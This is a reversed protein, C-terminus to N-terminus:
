HLTQQSPSPNDDLESSPQKRSKKAFVIMEGMPFRVSLSHLWGPPSFPKKRSTYQSLRRLINGVSFWVMNSQVGTISFGQSELLAGITAPSFYWLHERLLLVWHKGMLRAPASAINPVNMVLIGNEALTQHLRGLIASPDAVHELVDWLTIIEFAEAPFVTDEVFGQVFNAMPYRLRARQISWGSPELGTSHWGANQAEGAFFGTACGVDLLRPRPLSTLHQILRIRQRAVRVRNGEEADYDMDELSQYVQELTKADDRPNTMVLGCQKCQVVPLYGAKVRSSSFYAQPQDDPDQITGPYVPQFTNGGCIGCPVCSVTM